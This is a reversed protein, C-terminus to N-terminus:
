PGESNIETALKNDSTKKDREIGGKEKLYKLTEIPSWKWNHYLSNRKPCKEWFADLIPKITISLKGCYNCKFILM